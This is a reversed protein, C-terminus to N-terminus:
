DCVRRALHSTIRVKAELSIAHCEATYSGKLRGLRPAATPTSTSRAHAPHRRPWHGFGVRQSRFERRRQRVRLRSEDEAGRGPPHLSIRLGLGAGQRTDNKGAKCDPRARKATNRPRASRAEPKQVVPCSCDQRCSSSHRSITIFSKHM